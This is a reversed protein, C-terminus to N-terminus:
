GHLWSHIGDISFFCQLRWLNGPWFSTSCESRSKKGEFFHPSSLSRRKSFQWTRQHYVSPSLRSKQTTNSRRKMWSDLFGLRWICPKSHQQKPHVLNNELPTLVWGFRQPHEGTPGITSFLLNTGPSTAKGSKRQSGPAKRGKTTGPFSSCCFFLVFLFM